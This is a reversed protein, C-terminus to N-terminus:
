LNVGDPQLNLPTLFDSNTAFLGKRIVKNKFGSSFFRQCKFSLRVSILTQFILPRRCRTAFIYSPFLLLKHCFSM